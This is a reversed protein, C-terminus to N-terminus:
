IVEHYKSKFPHLFLLLKSKCCISNKPSPLISDGFLEKITVNKLLFCFYFKMMRREKGGSEPEEWGDSYLAAQRLM